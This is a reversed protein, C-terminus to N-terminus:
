LRAYRPCYSYIGANYTTKGTRELVDLTGIIMDDLENKALNLNSGQMYYNTTTRVYKKTFSGQQRLIIGTILNQLDQKTVIKENTKVHCM